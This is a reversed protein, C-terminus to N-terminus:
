LGLCLRQMGCNFGSKVALVPKNPEFIFWTEAYWSAQFSGVLSVIPNRRLHLRAKVYFSQRAMCDLINQRCYKVLILYM